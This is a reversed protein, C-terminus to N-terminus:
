PRQVAPESDDRWTHDLQFKEAETALKKLARSRNALLKDINGAATAVLERANNTEVSFHGKHNHYIQILKEIGSATDTLSILEKQMQDVWQRVMLSSPFQGTSVSSITSLLLLLSISSTYTDM